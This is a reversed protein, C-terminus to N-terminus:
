TNPQGELTEPESKALNRLSVHFEKDVFEITSPQRNLSARVLTTTYLGSRPKWKAKSRAFTKIWQVICVYESKVPDDGNEGMKRCRLPLALLPKGNIQVQRVMEAQATIKGVGVFGHGKLYAVCVDGLNFRRM